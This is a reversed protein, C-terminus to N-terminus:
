PTHFVEELPAWWEGEVATDVTEQMPDTVQWWERTRPDAAMSAMDAGFDSGVYEFYALLLGDRLFISYNRINSRRIQDLVDPWVAAHLRRYDAETEARLRIVQAVRAPAAETGSPPVLMPTM